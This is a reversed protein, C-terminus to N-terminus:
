VSHYIFFNLVSNWDLRIKHYRYITNTIIRMDIIMKNLPINNAQQYIYRNYYHGNTAYFGLLVQFDHGNYINDFAYMIIRITGVTKRLSTFAPTRYYNQDVGDESTSSEKLCDIQDKYRTSMVNYLKNFLLAEKYFSESL